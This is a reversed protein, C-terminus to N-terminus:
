QTATNVDGGTPSRNPAESSSGRGSSGGIDAKRYNEPDSFWNDDDEEVEVPGLVPSPEGQSAAEPQPSEPSPPESGVHEVHPHPPNLVEERRLEELDWISLDPSSMGAAVICNGSTSLVMCRANGRLAKTCSMTDVNWVKLSNDSGCSALLGDELRLLSIPHGKTNELSGVSEGTSCAWVRLTDQAAGTAVRDEDVFGAATVPSSGAMAITHLCLIDELLDEETAPNDTQHELLVTDGDMVGYESLKKHSQLQVGNWVLRQQNASMANQQEAVKEKVAQVLSNNPVIINLVTGSPLAVEFHVLQIPGDNPLRLTDKIPWLRLTGDDSGSALLRGTPSTAVCTVKKEHGQLTREESWTTTNWIKIEGTADGTVLRGPPLAKLVTVEVGLTIEKVLRPATKGIIWCSIKSTM